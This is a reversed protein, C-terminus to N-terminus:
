MQSTHSKARNPEPFLLNIKCTFTRKSSSSKYGTYYSRSSYKRCTKIKHAWVNTSLFHWCRNSNITHHLVSKWTMNRHGTNVYTYLLFPLLFSESFPESCSIGYCLVLPFVL